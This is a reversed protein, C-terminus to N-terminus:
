QIPARPYLIIRDHVLIILDNLGDGTVDVVRAERPEPGSQLGRFSREEFVKWKVNLTMENESNLTVVEIHKKSTELFVLDQAGDGNLDGSVVDMLYGERTQTEYASLDNLEWREDSFTIWAVSNLNM